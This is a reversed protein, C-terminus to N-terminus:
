VNVDFSNKGYGRVSIPSQYTLNGYKLYTPLTLFHLNPSLAVLVTISPFASLLYMFRHHM